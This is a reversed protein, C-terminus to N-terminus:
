GFFKFLDTYKNFWKNTVGAHSILIKGFQAMYTFLDKNKQFIDINDYIYDSEESNIPYNPYFLYHIDHNGLLLTVYDPLKKKFDIITKFNELADFESIGERRYPDLYDGLFYFISNPNDDVIKQWSDRGHIDGIIVIRKM